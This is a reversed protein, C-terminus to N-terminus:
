IAGTATRWLWHAVYEIEQETLSAYHPVAAVTQAAREANPCDGAYGYFRAAPVCNQYIPATDIRARRLGRRAATCEQASAFRVPLLFHNWTGYQPDAPIHLPTTGLAERIRQTNRGLVPLTSEFRQLREALLVGDGRRLECVAFDELPVARQMQRKLRMHSWAADRRRGLPSALLMGYIPRQYALARAWGIVAHGWENLCSEAKTIHTTQTMGAIAPDNFVAAGGGGVAAPKHLGFSFFSAETHTGLLAGDYQSFLAHACDEIIPVGPGLSARVQQLNAPYGFTHVLVLADLKARSRSLFDLDLSYTELDAELFVPIHGAAAIAEFVSPCCYLPVGVRAQPRLRLLKLIAFLCERGSRLYLTRNAPFFNEAPIAAASGFAIARWAQRLDRTDYERANRPITKWVPQCFPRRNGIFPPPSESDLEGTITTPM